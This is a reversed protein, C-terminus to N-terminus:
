VSPYIGGRKSCRGTKSGEREVRGDVERVVVFWTAVPNCVGMCIYYCSLWSDSRIKGAVWCVWRDGHSGSPVCVNLGKHIQITGDDKVRLLQSGTNLGEWGERAGVRGSSWPCAVGVFDVHGFSPIVSSFEMNGGGLGGEGETGVARAGGGFAGSCVGAGRVWGNHHFCLGCLRVWWWVVIVAVHIFDVEDVCRGWVELLVKVGSDVVERGEGGVVLGGVVEIPECDVVSGGESSVDPVQLVGDCEELGLDVSEGRVGEGSGMLGRGWWWFSGLAFALGRVGGGGRSSSWGGGRLVLAFFGRENLRIVGLDVSFDDGLQWGGDWFGCVVGGNEISNVWCEFFSAHSKGEAAAGLLFIQNELGVDVSRGGLEFGVKVCDGVAEKLESDGGSADRDVGLPGFKNNVVDGGGKTFADRGASFEGIFKLNGEWSDCERLEGSPKCGGGCAGVFGVGGHNNGNRAFVGHLGEPNRVDIEEVFGALNGLVDGDRGWGLTLVTLSVAMVAEEAGFGWDARNACAVVIRGFVV